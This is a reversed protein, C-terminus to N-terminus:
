GTTAYRRPHMKGFVVYLLGDDSTLGSFSTMRTGSGCM